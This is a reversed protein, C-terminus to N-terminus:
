KMLDFIAKGGAATAGGGATGILVRKLLKMADEREKEKKIQSRVIPHKDLFAKMPVSNQKFIDLPKEPVIRLEPHVMKGISSRLNEPFYTNKYQSFIKKGQKLVHAIDLNGEKILHNELEDNIKDRLDLIEEGQNELAIDGSALGKTGKKFLHSQVKHIADYDGSKAAEVLKKNARTKSLIDIAEDLNKENIPINIKRKNIASRVQGYLDDITSLMTDHPKQVAEVAAEPNVKNFIGRLIEPAKQLVKEGVKGAGGLLLGETAGLARDGENGQTALAGTEALAAPTQLVKPLGAMATAGKLGQFLKGLVAGGGALEGGFQAAKPGAGQPQQFYNTLDPSSALKQTFETPILESIGRIPMSAGQLAGGAIAPIYNTVDTVGRAVSALLPSENKPTMSLISDRLWEPMGPYKESIQKKALEIAEQETGPRKNPDYEEFLNVSPPVQNQMPQQSPYEDFLNVM